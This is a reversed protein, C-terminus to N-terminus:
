RKPRAKPAIPKILGRQKLRQLQKLLAPESTGGGAAIILAPKGKAKERLERANSEALERAFTKIPPSGRLEYVTILQYNNLPSNKPNPKALEGFMRKAKDDGLTVAIKRFLSAAELEASRRKFEPDHRFAEFLDSAGAAKKAM